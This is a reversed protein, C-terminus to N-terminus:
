GAVNRNVAGMRDISSALFAMVHHSKQLLDHCFSALDDISLVLAAKKLPADVHVGNRIKSVRM